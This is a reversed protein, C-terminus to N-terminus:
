DLCAVKGHKFRCSLEARKNWELCLGDTDESGRRPSAVSIPRAVKQEGAGWFLRM